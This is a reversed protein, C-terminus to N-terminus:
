CGGGPTEVLYKVTKEGLELVSYREHGRGAWQVTWYLRGDIRFAGLPLMYDVAALQCDTLTTGVDTDGVSGGAIRAFGQTFAVLDCGAASKEKPQPYRRLVEFYYFFAGPKGWPSRCLTELKVPTASRSRIAQRWDGFSPVARSEAVDIDRQLAQRVSERLPAWEPSAEDLVEVREIVLDGTVALGDKPHHHVVPPPVPESAEYDTKLGINSVCHTNFLLPGTVHIPRPKGRLPWLTWTTSPGERGWWKGPVDRLTIPIDANVFPTPWRNSWNGGSYNAFPVIVGDRRMVALTFAKQDEGAGLGWEAGMLGLSLALLLVRRM